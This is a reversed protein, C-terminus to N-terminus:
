RSAHRELTILYAENERLLVDREFPRGATVRVRQSSVPRGDNEEALERIQERSLNPPSGLKLYATYVDNSQYGVRYINIQYAGPPLNKVFVRVLGFDRAPLDRAFFRQNSENTAPPTFNWFM